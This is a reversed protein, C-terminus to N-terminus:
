KASSRRLIKWALAAGGTLGIICGLLGVAEYGRVGLLSFDVWLNGGLLAGMIWGLVALSVPILIAAAAKMLGNM